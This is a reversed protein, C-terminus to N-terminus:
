SKEKREKINLQHKTHQRETNAITNHQGFTSYLHIYKEPHQSIYDAISIILIMITITRFKYRGTQM